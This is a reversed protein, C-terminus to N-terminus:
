FFDRVCTNEQSNQSIELFMMKVSCRWVVAESRQKTQFFNVRKWPNYLSNYSKVWFHSFPKGSNKIDDTISKMNLKNYCNKREKKCFKRRFNRQKKYVEFLHLYTDMKNKLYRTELETQKMIAKKRTKNMYWPIICFFYPRMPHNCSPTQPLQLSGLPDLAIRQHLCPHSVGSYSQKKHTFCALVTITLPFIPYFIDSVM